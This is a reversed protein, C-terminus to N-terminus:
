HVSPADSGEDRASLPTSTRLRKAADMLRAIREEIMEIPLGVYPNTKDEVEVRQKPVGFAHDLLKCEVVPSLTDSLVRRAISERYQRSEVVAKAFSKGTLKAPEELPEIHPGNPAAVHLADYISKM